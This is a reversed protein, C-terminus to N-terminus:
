GCGEGTLAPFSTQPRARKIVSMLAARREPSIFAGVRSRHPVNLRMLVNAWFAILMGDPSNNGFAYSRVMYRAAREAVAFGVLETLDHAIEVSSAQLFYNEETATM